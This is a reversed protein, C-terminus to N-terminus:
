RWPFEIESCNQHDSMSTNTDSPGIDRMWRELLIWNLYCLLLRRNYGRKKTDNWLLDKKASFFVPPRCTLRHRWTLKHRASTWLPREWLNSMKMSTTFTDKKGSHKKSTVTGFLELRSLTPDATNGKTKLDWQPSGRKDTADCVISSWHPSEKKVSTIEQM